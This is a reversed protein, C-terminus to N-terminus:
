FFIRISAYNSQHTLLKATCFDYITKKKCFKSMGSFQSQESGFCILIQVRGLLSFWRHCFHTSSKSLEFPLRNRTGLYLLYSFQPHIRLIFHCAKIAPHNGSSDESQTTKWRHSFTFKFTFLLVSFTKRFVEETQWPPFRNLGLVPCHSAFYSVDIFTTSGLFTSM